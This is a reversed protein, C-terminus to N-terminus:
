YPDTARSSNGSINCILTKFSTGGDSMVDSWNVGAAGGGDWPQSIHPSHVVNGKPLPWSPGAVRASSAAVVAVEHRTNILRQCLAVKQVPLSDQSTM